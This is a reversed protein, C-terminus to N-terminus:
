LVHLDVFALTLEGGCLRRVFFIATLDSGKGNLPVNGYHIVAIDDRGMWEYDSSIDIGTIIEEKDPCDLLSTVKYDASGFEEAAEERTYGPCGYGYVASELLKPTWKLEANEDTLFLELAEQYREQALFETWEILLEILEVDGADAPLTRLGPKAMHEEPIRYALLVQRVRKRQEYQRRSEEEEQKRRQELEEYYLKRERDAGEEYLTCHRFAVARKKLYREAGKQCKVMYTDPGFSSPVCNLFTFDGSGIIQRVEKSHLNWWNQWTATDIRCEALRILYETLEQELCM